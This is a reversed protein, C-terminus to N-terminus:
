GRGEDPRLLEEAAKPVGGHAPRLLDDASDDPRESARLLDKDMHGAERGARFDLYPALTINPWGPRRHDKETDAMLDNIKRSTAAARRELADLSDDDGHETIANPEM